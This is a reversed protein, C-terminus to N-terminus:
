NAPVQSLLEAFVKKAKGSHKVATAADLNVPKGVAILAVMGMGYHPACKVGYVGEQTLTVTIEENMKGKFPEASDPIMGKISQADHTKDTPVFKVTDGPAAQVFAPQFVMAGKEGKNLMQVVHEEANAGGALALISIAAALISLKM